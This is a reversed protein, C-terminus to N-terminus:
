AARTAGAGASTSSAGVGGRGQAIFRAMKAGVEDFAAVIDPQSEEAAVRMWPRAAVGPHHISKTRIQQGGKFFSFGGKKTTLEQAPFGAHLIRLYFLPTGVTGTVSNRTTSIRTRLSALGAGTRVKLFRGGLNEQARRMIAATSTRMAERMWAILEPTRPVAIAWNVDVRISIPM